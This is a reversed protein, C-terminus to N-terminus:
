KRKIFVLSGLALMAITTPEPVTSLRVDDVLGKFYYSSSAARRGIWVYDSLGSRYLSSTGIDVTGAQTTGDVSLSVIGDDFSATIHKWSNPTIALRIRYTGFAGTEDAVYLNLRTGTNSLTLYWSGPVEAIYTDTTKSSNINIWAEFKFSDEIPMVAFSKAYDDVGDLSAAKNFGSLSSVTTGGNAAGNFFRLHRNTRPYNTCQDYILVKGDSLTKLSDMNWLAMTQADDQLPETYAGLSISAFFVVTFLSLFLRNKM